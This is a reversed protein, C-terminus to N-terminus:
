WFQELGQRAVKGLHEGLVADRMHELFLRIASRQAPSYGEFREHMRAMDNVGGLSYMVRETVTDGVGDLAMLLYTPLYFHLGGPLMLSLSSNHFTAVARPLERWGYGRFDWNIDMGEWDKANCIAEDGPHPVDAFAERIAQKVQEKRAMEKPASTADEPPLAGKGGWYRALSEQALYRSERDDCAERVHALFLRIASRQAEPYTDYEGKFRTMDDPPDLAYIRWSNVGQDHLKDLARLLYAPLYFHRGEPKMFPLSCAYQELIKAPLDRWHHGRFAENLDEAWHYEPPPTIVEEGPHPVDAFAEQIIQQIQEGRAANTM